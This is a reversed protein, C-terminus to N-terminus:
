IEGWKKVRKEIEDFQGETMRSINKLLVTAQSATKMSGSNDFLWNLLESASQALGWRRWLTEGGPGGKLRYLGVMEVANRIMRMEARNATEVLEVFTEFKETNM